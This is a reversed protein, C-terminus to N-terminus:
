LIKALKHNAFNLSFFKTIEYLKLILTTVLTVLMIQYIAFIKYFYAVFLNFKQFNLKQWILFRLTKFFLKLVKM